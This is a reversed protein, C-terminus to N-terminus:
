FSLDAAQDFLATSVQIIRPDFLVPRHGRRIKLIVDDSKSGAFFSIVLNQESASVAHNKLSTCVGVTSFDGIGM